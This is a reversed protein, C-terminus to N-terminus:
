KLEVIAFSHAPLHLKITNDKFDLLKIGPNQWKLPNRHHPIKLENRRKFLEAYEPDDAEMLEKASKFNKMKLAAPNIKVTVDQNM